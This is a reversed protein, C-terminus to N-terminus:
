DSSGEGVAVNDPIVGRWNPAMLLLPQGKKNEDYIIQGQHSAGDVSYNVAESKM